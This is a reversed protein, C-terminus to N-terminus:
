SYPFAKLVVDFVLLVSSILVSTKSIIKDKTSAIQWTQYFRKMYFFLLPLPLQLTFHPPKYNSCLIHRVSIVTFFLVLENWEGIKIRASRHRITVSLIISTLIRQGGFVYAIYFCIVTISHSQWISTYYLSLIM